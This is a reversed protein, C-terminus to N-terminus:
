IKWCFDVWFDSSFLGPTTEGEIKAFFDLGSITGSLVQITKKFKKSFNECPRARVFGLYSLLFVLM